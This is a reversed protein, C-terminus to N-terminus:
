FASVRCGCQVSEKRLGRNAGDSSTRDCAPFFDPSKVLARFGWLTTDKAVKKWGAEQWWEGRGPGWGALAAKRNGSCASGM